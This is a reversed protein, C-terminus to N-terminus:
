ASIRDAVRLLVRCIARGREAQEAPYGPHFICRADHAVLAADAHKGFRGLHTPRDGIRVRVRWQGRESDFAVGGDPLIRNQTNFARTAERLNVLRNNAKDRDHHDLEDEPWRGHTHLWVLQHARYSRGGVFIRIYGRDTLGGAVSGAAHRGRRARNTFIGTLPDYDLLERLRAATLDSAAM